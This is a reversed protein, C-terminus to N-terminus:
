FVVTWTGSLDVDDAKEIAGSRVKRAYLTGDALFLGFEIIALGNAELVTLHFAARVQGAAPYTIADIDKLYAGVSLGTDDLDAAAGSEGFGIQALSRDVVDGGLLHADAERGTTVILNRDVVHDIVRGRRRVTYELIGVREPFRDHAQM